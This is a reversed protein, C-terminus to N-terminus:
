EAQQFRLRYFGRNTTLPLSITIETGNSSVSDPTAVTWNTQALDAITTIDISGLADPDRHYIIEFQDSRASGSFSAKEALNTPSTGLFYEELDSSGDGDTDESPDGSLGLEAAWNSFTNLTEAQHFAAVADLDFGASGTTPYPDYITYGGADKANGDGVIDILRIYGINNLDIHPFNNTFSTIFSSSFDTNHEIIADYALQLESLDFPTGYAMNYKSALGFIQTPQVSGYTSVPNATDSYNPFRVFNTGDSSVEIWGLELFTSTVGNEFVAFDFGAGNQIPNSFTITIQGSRGLCVIDTSIGEAKGLAKEPTKWTEDVFSGYNVNQYGDAWGSISSDDKHIATSGSQGAAPAFPSKTAYTYEAAQISYIALTTFLTLLITKKM